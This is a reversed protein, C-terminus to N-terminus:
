MTVALQEYILKRWLNVVFVEAEADLVFALQEQIDAVPTRSMIKELIFKTLSPEEEGLYEKVKKSVWERMKKEVIRHEKIVEYDLDFAFLEEKETPVQSILKQLERETRQVMDADLKTLPKHKRPVQEEEEDDEADAFVSASVAASRPKKPAGLSLGFGIKTDELKVASTAVGETPSSPDEPVAATEHTPIPSTDKATELPETAEQVAKEVEAEKQLQEQLEQLRDQEDMELERSRERLKRPDRKRKVRDDSSYDLEKEVQRERARKREKARRSDKRKRESERIEIDRLINKYDQEERERKRIHRHREVERKERTRSARMSRRPQSSKQGNTKKDSDAPEQSLQQSAALNSSNEGRCQHLLSALDLM